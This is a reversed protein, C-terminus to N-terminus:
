CCRVEAFKVAPHDWAAANDDVPVINYVLDGMAGCLGTASRRELDGVRVGEEGGVCSIRWGFFM